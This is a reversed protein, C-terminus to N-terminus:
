AIMWRAEIMEGHAWRSIVRFVYTDDLALYDKVLSGKAPHCM